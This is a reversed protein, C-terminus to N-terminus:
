SDMICWQQTLNIVTKFQTYIAKGVIVTKRSPPNSYLATKSNGVPPFQHFDGMLM